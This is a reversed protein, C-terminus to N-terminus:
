SSRYDRDAAERLTSLVVGSTFIGCLVLNDFQRPNLLLDLNSTSFAGFRKKTVVLDGEEPLLEAHIQTAPDADGM